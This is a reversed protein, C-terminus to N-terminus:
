IKCSEVCQILLKVCKDVAKVLKRFTIAPHNKVAFFVFIVVIYKLIFSHCFQGSTNFTLPNYITTLFWRMIRSKTGNVNRKSFLHWMKISFKCQIMLGNVITNKRNAFKIKGFFNPMFLRFKLIIIGFHTVQWVKISFECTSLSNVITNNQNSFKM